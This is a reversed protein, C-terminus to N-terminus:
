YGKIHEKRSLCLCKKDKMWRNNEKLTPQFEQLCKGQGFVRQEFYRCKINIDSNVCFTSNPVRIEKFVITEQM